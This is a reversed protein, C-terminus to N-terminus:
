EIHINDKKSEKDYLEVKGEMLETIEGKKKTYLEKADEPDQIVYPTLFVYLNTKEDTEGVFSFLYRIVPIDGLCPVKSANKSFSDDILGGIVITDKDNVIVTTDISRKFTKPQNAVEEGGEILRSTEQSIKLRIRRGKSIQPTIKLTIGVDKYEYSNYTDNDSTSTKTQYPVNKGVTISAEENDTTLLQPTSLIHVDDDIKSAEIIAGLNPFIVDGITLPETIVGMSFGGPMFGKGLGSLSSYDSGTFGIGVAGKTLRTQTNGDSDVYEIVKSGIKREDGAIWETGIDFKKNVNVEMILCEIYVMSRPIDLKRIIEEIIIYDSKEALTIISNTAKDATLNVDKPVVPARKKGGKKSTSSEKPLSKLVSVLDEATANELYYVHIKENGPPIEKDLMKILERVRATNVKSALIVITNTREDSVLKIKNETQKKKSQKTEKFVTDLLSVLKSADAYEIPVMTIEQGIGSVDIIELIRLLKKINSYVDTIILMNTPAYSLMSSNKSVLPTFLRKIEEPEAYKLSLIQTVIKDEVVGEKKLRTEINKSKADPAPIIKTVEGAEVTALSHVELVSEFVKYAEKTSIMSPSIITVKKNKVRDDVIFNKKTLESIFKIFVSIQVDNFNISVFQEPSTEKPEKRTAAPTKKGKRETKAKRKSSSPKKRILDKPKKEPVPSSVKDKKDPMEIPPKPPQKGIVEKMKDDPLSLKRKFLEEAKDAPIMPKKGKGDEVTDTSVSSKKENVKKGAEGPLLMKKDTVEKGTKVSADPPKDTLNEETIVSAPSTGLGKKGPERKDENVAFTTTMLLFSFSILYSTIIKFNIKM